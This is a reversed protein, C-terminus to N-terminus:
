KRIIRWKGTKDSGIRAIDNSRQLESLIRKISREAMGIKKALEAITVSENESVLILIKNATTGTLPPTTTVTTAINKYDFEIVFESLDYKFVPIPAKAKKCENIIKIIGWGWAEILGARFFANAVDPNFPRSPHEAKLREITWDDPLQGENWIVIRTAYVRIQIPNGSSYDKHAIANLLAERLAPEPVPYQEIRQVGKYSITAKLYKTLLLDMTKDVQEFLHGHVDDQFVPGDDTFYGIKVFAGTVYKEPNSHFLLIAARKLHHSDTKLNLKEILAENKARITEPPLRKAESAKNRFAQFAEKSLEKVTAFPMPVGDWRKGQKKLLFKDLAAGKLEQKTSGSRYFYQGKYSIPNPYPEVIIQLYERKSKIKLNVDVLIGLADKVKNPLDELLKKSDAIGTVTGQDNIGVYIKGGQANAFGCIWKIYEDRWQEKWEINQQEKM